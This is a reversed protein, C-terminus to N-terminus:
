AEVTALCDPANRFGRDLKVMVVHSAEQRRLARLLEGGGSRNALPTGGSVARDEVVQGLGIARLHCYAEIRGRQDALGLGSAVQEVTSVRVYGIAENM